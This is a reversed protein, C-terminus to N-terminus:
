RRTVCGTATDRFYGLETAIVALAIADTTRHHELYICLARIVKEVGRRRASCSPVEQVAGAGPHHKVTPPM